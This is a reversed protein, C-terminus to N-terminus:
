SKGGKISVIEKPQQIDCEWGYWGESKLSGNHWKCDSYRVWCIGIATLSVLFIVTLVLAVGTFASLRVPIPKQPAPFRIRYQARGPRFSHGDPRELGERLTNQEHSYRAM